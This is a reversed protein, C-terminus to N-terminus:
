TPYPVQVRLNFFMGLLGFLAAAAFDWPSLTFEFFGGFRGVGVYALDLAAAGFRRIGHIDQKFFDNIAALTAQMM